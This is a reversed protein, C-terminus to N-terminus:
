ALGLQERVDEIVTWARPDRFVGIMGAFHDAEEEISWGMIQELWPHLSEDFFPPVRQGPWYILLILPIYLGRALRVQQLDGEWGVDRLGKLYGQLVIDDFQGAESPEVKRLGHGWLPFLDVGLPGFGVLAWDIVVIEESDGAPYRTFLNGHFFDYHCLTQPMADLASLYAEREAWIDRFIEVVDPPLARRALPHHDVEDLLAAAPAAHAVGGRLFGKSLWSAEPKPHGTLYAGSFQGLHRAVVGYHRIPWKPGRDDVSAFHDAVEEMWIWCPGDTKEEIGLCRPATLGGPLDDLWGSQYVEVERRWYNWDSRRLGTGQPRLSKLILSWDLDDGHDRARGGLRHVTSAAGSHAGVGRHIQEIRWDTVEATKSGLAQRVLPTLTTADISTLRPEVNHAM